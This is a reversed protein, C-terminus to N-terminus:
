CGRRRIAFESVRGGRAFGIPGERGVAGQLFSEMPPSKFSTTAQLPSPSQKPGLGPAAQAPGPPGGPPGQPGPPPAPGGQPGGPGQPAGPPAAPPRMVSLAEQLDLAAQQARQALSSEFM